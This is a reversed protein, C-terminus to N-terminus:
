QKHLRTVFEIFIRRSEEAYQRYVVDNRTSGTNTRKRPHGYNHGKIRTKILYQPYGKYEFYREASTDDYIFHLNEPIFKEEIGGSIALLSGDFKCIPLQIVKIDFQQNFENLQQLNIIDSTNLPYPATYINEKTRVYPEIAEHEVIDWTSDWMKRSALTVAHPQSFDLEGLIYFYDEPMLCDSEGWVTYKAQSDYIDRRWDTANYFGDDNRKYEIEADRLVPHSLFETFMEDTTGVEPSEIFTQANLCVKFKVPLKSYQLANYVSDLTENLMKSEYWMIHIQYLIYQM